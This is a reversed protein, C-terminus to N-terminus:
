GVCVVSSPYFTCVHFAILTVFFMVGACNLMYIIKM